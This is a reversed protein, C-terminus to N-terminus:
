NAKELESLFAYASMTARAGDAAATIMQRLGTVRVDGAAFVGPINTRLTAHDAIVWGTADMDLGSGKFVESNPLNGVFIFVGTAPIQKEGGNKVNKVSVSEAGTKGNIATVVTDWVPEIKPNALARKALMDAARLRDRRHVLYVKSAFRTLYEAEEVATDGGGVVMIDENRFFPGDCVACYSVGRGTLEAEGPVGLHRHRAGTAVILADASLDGKDTRVIKEPGSFDLSEIETVRIEAGLYEAHEQLSAALDFGSIQKIGPWNEVDNTTTIQGGIAGKELVVVDLGSRKAYVAATLGAPGAGLILLEHHEM